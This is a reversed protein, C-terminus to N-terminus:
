IVVTCKRGVSNAAEPPDHNVMLHLGSFQNLPWSKWSRRPGHPARIPAQSKTRHVLRKLVRSGLLTLQKEVKFINCHLAQGGEVM